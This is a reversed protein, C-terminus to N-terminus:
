EGEPGYSSQMMLDYDQAEQYIAEDESQQQAEYETAGRLADYDADEEYQKRKEQKELLRDILWNLQEKTAEKFSGLKFHKKAREKVKDADYGLSHALGFFMKRQQITAEM